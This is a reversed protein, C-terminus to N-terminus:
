FIRVQVGLGLMWASERADGGSLTRNARQVSFDFSAADNALPIGFGGTIRSESVTRGGIGFPLANRAYGARLQVASGRLRPGAVEAGASWNTADRPEVLASGLGRMRTWEQREVGIAFISGPIGDYRIAAGIRNPVNARTRVSDNVRSDMGFGSRYSASVALGRVVALEAGVSVGTGYYTVRSTDLVSGFATTDPFQRESAVVNDGTFLHGGVGVSLRENPRWGVAARLDGISGRVDTRDTTQFTDGGLAVEGRTVTTYSRDLFTSASLGVAVGRRVPLAVFLLPIRQATTRERADGVRLTRYEPEAQVALLPRALGGVSAPNRPSVADFEAFSGGTAAARTSNGGVPYGFGLGSLTGQAEATSGAVLLAGGALLTRGSRRIRAIM